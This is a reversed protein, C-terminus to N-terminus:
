ADASVIWFFPQLEALPDRPGAPSLASPIRALDVRCQPQGCSRQAAGSRVSLMGPMQSWRAGTCLNALSKLLGSVARNGFMIHADAGLCPCKQAPHDRSGPQATRYKGKCPLRPHLMFYWHSPFLEPPDMVTNPQAASRKAPLQTTPARRSPPQGPPRPTGWADLCRHCSAYRPQPATAAMFPPPLRRAAFPSPTAREAWNPFIWGCVM